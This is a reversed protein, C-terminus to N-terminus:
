ACWQWTIASAYPMPGSSRTTSSDESVNSTAMSWIAAVRSAPAAITTASGSNQVGASSGARSASCPTVIM